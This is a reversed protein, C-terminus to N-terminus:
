VWLGRWNGLWSGSYGCGGILLCFGRCLASASLWGPWPGVLGILSDVVSLGHCYHSGCLGRRAVRSCIARTLLRCHTSSCMPYGRCFVVEGLSPFTAWKDSLYFCFSICFSPASFCMEFSPVFYFGLLLVLHLPSLYDWSFYKFTTIMFIVVSHSFFTHM